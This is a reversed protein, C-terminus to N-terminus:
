KFPKSFIRSSDIHVGSPLFSLQYKWITFSDQTNNGGFAAYWNLWDQKEKSSPVLNRKLFHKVNVDTFKQDIYRSAYQDQEIAAVYNTLSSEMFDKKWWLFHSYKVPIDSAKLQYTTVGSSDAITGISFMSNYPFM